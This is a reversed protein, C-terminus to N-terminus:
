AVEQQRNRFETWTRQAGLLADRVDRASKAYVWRALLEDQTSDLLETLARDLNSQVLRQMETSLSLNYLLTAEELTTPHLLRM